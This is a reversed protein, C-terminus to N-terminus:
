LAQTLVSARGRTGVERKALLIILEKLRCQTLVRSLGLWGAFGPGVSVPEQAVSQLDGEKVAVASESRCTSGNGLM